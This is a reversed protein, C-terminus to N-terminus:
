QIRKEMKVELLQAQVVETTLKLNVMDDHLNDQFIIVEHDQSTHVISPPNLNLAQVNPCHSL